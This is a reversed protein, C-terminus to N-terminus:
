ALGGIGDIGQLIRTVSGDTLRQIYISADSMNEACAWALYDGRPFIRYMCQTAIRISRRERWPNWRCVLLRYIDMSPSNAPRYPFALHKGDPSWSLLNGFRTHCAEPSIKREPGGLPSILFVKPGEETGRCIAINKGDPSWAAGQIYGPTRTLRLPQDNGLVKAYLDVGGNATGDFWVFAIQSGDPSFTPSWMVGPLTTDPM